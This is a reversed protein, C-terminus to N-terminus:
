EEADICVDHWLGPADDLGYFVHGGPRVTVSAVVAKRGAYELQEVTLRNDYPWEALIGALRKRDGVRVRSGVSFRATFTKPTVESPDTRAAREARAGSAELPRQRTRGPLRSVLAQGLPGIIISTLLAFLAVLLIVPGASM